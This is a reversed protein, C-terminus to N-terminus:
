LKVGCWILRTLCYPCFVLLDIDQGDVWVCMAGPWFGFAGVLFWSRCSLLGHSWHSLLDFIHLLFQLLARKLPLAPPNHPIPHSCVEDLCRYHNCNM